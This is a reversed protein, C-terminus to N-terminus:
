NRRTQDVGLCLRLRANEATLEDIRRQQAAIQQLSTRLSQQITGSQQQMQQQFQTLSQQARAMGQLFDAADLRLRALLDGVLIEAM